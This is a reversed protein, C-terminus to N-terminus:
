SRAAAPRGRPALRPVFRGVRYLYDEYPGGHVGVLYREERRAEWQLFLVHLLGVALMLPSPTAIMATIALLSSLAYIPHRVYAYPGTFVLQTRETPDIGM